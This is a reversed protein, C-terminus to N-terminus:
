RVSYLTVYDRVHTTVPVSVFKGRWQSEHDNLYQEYHHERLSDQANKGWGYFPFIDVHRRDNEVKKHEIPRFSDEM